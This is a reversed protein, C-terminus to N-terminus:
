HQQILVPLILPADTSALQVQLMIIDKDFM